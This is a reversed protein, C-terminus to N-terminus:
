PVSITVPGSVLYPDGYHRDNLWNAAVAVRYVWAGKPAHDVFRGAHTTGIEPLVLKCLRAGTAQPCSFEDTRGRLIRYFVPGGLPRQASWRLTVKRGRFSGSLGLDVNAPIPMNTAGMTAPKLGGATAALAFAGAPLVATVLVALGIFGWGTRPRPTAFAPRWRRLKEPAHPLL